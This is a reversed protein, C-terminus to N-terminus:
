DTGLDRGGLWAKGRMRRHVAGACNSVLRRAVSWDGPEGAQSIQWIRNDDGNCAALIAHFRQCPDVMATGCLSGRSRQLRPSHASLAPIHLAHPSLHQVPPFGSQLDNRAVDPCM